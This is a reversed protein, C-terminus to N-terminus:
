WFTIQVNRDELIPKDDTDFGRLVPQKALEPLLEEVNDHIKILGQEVLQLAAVATLLKTQSALLFIADEQIDNAHPEASTKGVAHSYNFSGLITSSNTLDGQNAPPYAFAYLSHHVTGTQQSCWRMLSKEKISPMM